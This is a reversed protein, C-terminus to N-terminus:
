EELFAIFEEAGMPIINGISSVSNIGKVKEVTRACETESNFIVIRKEEQGKKVFSIVKSVM